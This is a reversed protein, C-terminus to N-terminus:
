CYRSWEIHRRGKWKGLFKKVRLIWNLAKMLRYFSSFHQFLKEILHQGMESDTVVSAVMAMPKIEADENLSFEDEPRTSPWNNKYDRVFDPRVSWSTPVSRADCCRSLVDAPNIDSAM